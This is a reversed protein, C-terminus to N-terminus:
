YFCEGLKAIAIHLRLPQQPEVELFDHGAKNQADLPQSQKPWM